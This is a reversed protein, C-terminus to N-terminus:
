PQFGPPTSPILLGFRAAREAFQEATESEWPIYQLTIPKRLGYLLIDIVDRSPNSLKMISEKRVAFVQGTIITPVNPYYVDILEFDANNDKLEVKEPALIWGYSLCTPSYLFLCPQLNMLRELTMTEGGTRFFAGLIPISSFYTGVKTRRFVIGTFYFILLWLVFGIGPYVFREPIFFQLFDKGERELTGIIYSGVLILIGVPLWLIFGSFLYGIQRRTFKFM